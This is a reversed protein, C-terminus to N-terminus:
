KPSRYYDFYATGKSMEAWRGDFNMRVVGSTKVNGINENTLYEALYTISPNHGILCACHWLDDMRNVQELLERISCLYMSEEFDIRDKSFKLEEQIHLATQTTRLSSSVIFRDPLEKAFILQAQKRADRMGSDILGRDFDDLGPTQEAKGHRMLFLTKSM